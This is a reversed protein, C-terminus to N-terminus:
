SREYVATLRAQDLVQGAMARDLAERDAGPELELTRHLAFATFRYRHAGRGRPPAPGGWGIDGFDNTGQRAGALSPIEPEGPIDAPIARGAPINWILWHVWTGAPADPDDVVLALTKAMAPVAEVALPPSTDSGDRSHVRRIPDGEQFASSTVRM